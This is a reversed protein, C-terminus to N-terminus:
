IDCSLKNLEKFAVALDTALYDQYTNFLAVVETTDYPYIRESSAANLMAAVGHRALANVGEGEQSLVDMLNMDSFTDAFGAALFSDEPKFGQWKEINKTQLWYEPGCDDAIVAQNGVVILALAFVLQITLRKM